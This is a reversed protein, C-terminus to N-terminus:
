SLYATRSILVAMAFLHFGLAGCATSLSRDSGHAKLNEIKDINLGSGDEHNLPLDLPLICPTHV